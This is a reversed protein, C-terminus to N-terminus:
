LSSKYKIFQELIQLHAFRNSDVPTKDGKEKLEEKTLMFPNSSSQSMSNPFKRGFLQGGIAISPIQSIGCIGKEGPLGSGRKM